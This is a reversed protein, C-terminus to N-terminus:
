SSRGDSTSRKARRWLRPTSRSKKPTAVAATSSNLVATGAIWGGVFAVPTALTSLLPDVRVAIIVVTSGTPILVAASVLCSVRVSPSTRCRERYEHLTGNKWKRGVEKLLHRTLWDVERARNIGRYLDALEDRLTSRIGATDSLWRERDPGSPAYIHSYHQFRHEVQQAYGPEPARLGGRDEARGPGGRGRQRAQSGRRFPVVGFSTGSLYTGVPADIRLEGREVLDLVVAATFTKTISGIRYATSEDADVQGKVDALGVVISGIRVDDRAAAVVLSPLRCHRQERIAIEDLDIQTGSLPAMGDHVTNV